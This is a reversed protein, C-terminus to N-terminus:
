DQHLESIYLKLDKTNMNKIYDFPKKADLWCFHQVVKNHLLWNQTKLFITFYFKMFGLKNCNYKACKELESCDICLSLVTLM